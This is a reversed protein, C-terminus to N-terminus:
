CTLYLSRIIHTITFSLLNLSAIFSVAITLQRCLEVERVM